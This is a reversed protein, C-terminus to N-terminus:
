ISKIKAILKEVALLAECTGAKTRASFDHGLEFQEAPIGILWASPHADYLWAALNLLSEPSSKHTQLLDPSTSKIRSVHLDSGPYADVFIVQRIGTLQASLEPTLQHVSLAEVDAHTQHSIAHAVWRGAGDDGRLESGWGIVLTAPRSSQTHEALRNM